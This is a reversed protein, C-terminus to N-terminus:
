LLKFIEEAIHEASNPLALKLINESLEKRKNVDNLLNISTKVLKEEAEHDEVMIAASKNVLALANKKQHDEAVNPSPVLITPKGVIQLESITGAGARSIIISAIHYALDMDNIFAMLKVNDKKYKEVEPYLKDYYYKGCQWLVQIQDPIENLSNLISRNITGAGLSGGLVLIVPLDKKLGFSEFAKETDIEPNIIGQRVPNGSLILKDPSFYKEMGEYAVFIKSAKRALIKNTVGAHSNQEQLVTPIGKSAAARLIPGSAYGGVGIALHPNFEKIIQSAKRMSKYLKVFFSINKISLKRQFGAVPLGIIEFGAEPVKQMEIKDMAGVFLIQTEPKLKMIAKAISIAPFIHGGTGGGGIIIRKHEM